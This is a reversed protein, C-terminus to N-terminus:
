SFLIKLNKFKMISFLLRRLFNAYIEHEIIKIKNLIENLKILIKLM